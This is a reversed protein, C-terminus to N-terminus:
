YYLLVCVECCPKSNLSWYLSLSWHHYYLCSSVHVDFLYIYLIICPHASIGSKNRTNFTIEWSHACRVLSIDHKVCSIFRTNGRVWINNQKNYLSCDKRAIYSMWLCHIIITQFAIIKVHSIIMFLIVHSIILWWHGCDRYLASYKIYYFASYKRKQEDIFIKSTITIDTTLNQHCAKNRFYQLIVSAM